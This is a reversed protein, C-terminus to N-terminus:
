KSGPEWSDYNRDMIVIDVRRNKRRNEENNNSFAPKYEGYGVAVIKKPDVGNEVLVHIVNTARIVSLEWNSQFKETHMPLNDTYGEVRIYNPLPKIMAAINKLINVREPAIDASGKAFFVSDKLSIVIGREEIHTTIYNQLNNQSVYQSIDIAIDNVSKNGSVFESIDSGSKDGMIYRTGELLGLSNALMAFKTQNLTSISYMVIFFIMLLTIMDSYTLLWREKNDKEIRSNHKKFKVVM